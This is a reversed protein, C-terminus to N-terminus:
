LFVIKFLIKMRLEGKLMLVKIRTGSIYKLHIASQGLLM